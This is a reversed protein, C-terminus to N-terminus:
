IGNGAKSVTVGSATALNGKKADDLVIRSGNALPLYAKNGGPVIQKQVKNATLKVTVTEHNKKRQTFLVGALLVAGIVAAVQLWRYKNVRRSPLQVVKRSNSLRQWIRDHVEEKVQDDNWGDEALIMEDRYTDLLKKEDDTCQGSMYKEYLALFEVKTIMLNCVPKYRSLTFKMYACVNIKIKKENMTLQPNIKSAKGLKIWGTIHVIGRNIISFKPKGDTIIVFLSKSHKKVPVPYPQILSRVPIQFVPFVALFRYM